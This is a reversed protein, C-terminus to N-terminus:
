FGEFRNMETRIEPIIKLYKVLKLTVNIQQCPDMLCYYTDEKEVVITKPISNTQEISSILRDVCQYYDNNIDTILEYGIITGSTKDAILFVTPLYPREGKNEVIPKLLFFADAEWTANTKKVSKLLKRLALENSVSYSNYTKSLDGVPSYTDRWKAKEGKGQLTRILMQDPKANLINNNDRCREAVDM